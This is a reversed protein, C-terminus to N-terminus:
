SLPIINNKTDGNNRMLKVQKNKIFDIGLKM